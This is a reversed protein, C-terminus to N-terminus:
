QSGAGHRRHENLPCRGHTALCFFKLLNIGPIPWIKRLGCAKPRPGLTGRDSATLIRTVACTNVASRAGVAQRTLERAKRLRGYYAETDSLLPLNESDTGAMRAARKQMSAPDNRVFALLYLSYNNSEDEFSNSDRAHLDKLIAEDLRNLTLAAFALLDLTTPSPELQAADRAERFADEYRGLEEDM